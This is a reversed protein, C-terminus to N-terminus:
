RRGKNEINFPVVWEKTSTSDPDRGIVFIPKEPPLPPTGPRTGGVKRNLTTANKDIDPQPSSKGLGAWIGLLILVAAFAAAVGLGVREGKQLMFQKFDFDIKKAM